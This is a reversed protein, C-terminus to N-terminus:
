KRITTGAIFISDLFTAGNFLYFTRSSDAIFPLYSSQISSLTSAYIKADVSPSLKLNIASNNPMLSVFRVLAVNVSDHVYTTDYVYKTETSGSCGILAISALSLIVALYRIM